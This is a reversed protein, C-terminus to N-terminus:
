AHKPRPLNITLQVPEQGFEAAVREKLERIDQCQTAIGIVKYIHPILAKLGVDETFWQHYNKGHYPRPKNEKLYKAIKPDLADYVLDMVLHGWWKPRSHLPGKWKTLRGFQEWLEDPFTKEWDRLEEAIFARLKVQLADQAREYQYGTAEDIQAIIGLRLFSTSLVACTIAIQVQRDTKLAGAHLANVYGTLIGEFQEATIGKGRFGTGPIHFDITEELVLGSNVFPKLAKVGIYDELVGGDIGTLVKVAARLSLVRAGTDLVYVDVPNGGLDMVGRHKAFPSPPMVEGELAPPTEQPTTLAKPAKAWRAAAAAKASLARQEPTMNAARAAGGKKGGKRGMEAAAQNKIAPPAFGSDLLPQEAPADAVPPPQSEGKTRSRKPM